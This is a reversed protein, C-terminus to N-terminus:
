LIIQLNDRAARTKPFIKRAVREAKVRQRLTKYLSADFHVLVLKKAKAEEAVRAASEPNLHPWGPKSQGSLYGCESILLDAERALLYLNKCIGTDTCYTIIKDELRFRYGYCPSPHLLKKFTVPFPPSIRSNLEHLRVATKLAKISATFPQRIIATMYKKLGRSGYIDIGQPFHFKNLIHLGVIHDLHFHSLFLYIPKRTTIHRGIKYFGNGADLILYERETEVLICVTNGTETDYWGNTGLFTIKM